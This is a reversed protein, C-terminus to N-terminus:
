YLYNESVTENYNIVKQKPKEFKLYNIKNPDGVLSLAYNYISDENANSSNILKVSNFEKLITPGNTYTLQVKDDSEWDKWADLQVITVGNDNQIIAHDFTYLFDFYKKTFDDGLIFSQKQLQDYYCIKSPDGNALAKAYEYLQKKDAAHVLQTNQASTYIILGDQTMFQHTNGSYDSYSVIHAISVLDNSDDIAINFNKETDFNDRNSNLKSCGKMGSIGLVGLIFVIAAGAKFDDWSM